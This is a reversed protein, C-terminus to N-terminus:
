KAMAEVPTSVNHTQCVSLWGSRNESKGVGYTQSLRRHRGGVGGSGPGDGRFLSKGSGCLGSVFYLREKPQSGLIKEELKSIKLIIKKWNWPNYWNKRESKLVKCYYSWHLVHELERQANILFKRAFVTTTAWTSCDCIRSFLLRRQLINFFLLVGQFLLGGRYCFDSCYTIFVM